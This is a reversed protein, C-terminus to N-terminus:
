RCSAGARGTSCRSSGPHWVYVATALGVLLVFPALRLDQGRLVRWSLWALGLVGLALGAPGLYWSLWVMTLEDYSRPVDVTLGEAAQLSAITQNTRDPIKRTVQVLPRVFWAFAALGVVLGAVPWALRAGLRPVWARPRRVVVAAVAVLALAARDAAAAGGGVRRLRPQRPLRRWRWAPRSAAGAAVALGTWGARVLLLAAALPVLYLFADIRAMASGGLVLGTVLGGRGGALRDPAATRDRGV